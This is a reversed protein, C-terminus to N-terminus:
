WPYDDKMEWGDRAIKSACCVGSGTKSCNTNISDTTNSYCELLIGKNTRRLVFVDRGLRNPEKEVNLDIRVFTESAGSGGTTRMNVFIGDTTIFSVGATPSVAGESYTTGTIQKWPFNTQYKCEQYTECVKLIKMYPKIYNKFYESPGAKFADDWSEYSGNEAQSNNYAQNLTSYIKKLRVVTQQKQYNRVVSPITLSAVVGIIALTILVEALTFAKKVNDM